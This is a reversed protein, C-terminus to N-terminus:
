NLHRLLLLHVNKQLEHGCKLAFDKNEQFRLSCKVLLWPSKGSASLNTATGLLCHKVMLLGPLLCAFHLNVDM